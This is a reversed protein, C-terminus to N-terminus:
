LLLAWEKARQGDKKEKGRGSQGKTIGRGRQKYRGILFGPSMRILGFFCSNLKSPQNFPAKSANM